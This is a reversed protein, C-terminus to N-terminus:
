SLGVAALIQTPAELSDYLFHQFQQLPTVTLLRLFASLVATILRLLRKVVKSQSVIHPCACSDLIPWQSTINEDLPLQTAGLGAVDLALQPGPAASFSPKINM